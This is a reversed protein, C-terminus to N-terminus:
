AVALDRHRIKVLFAIRLFPPRAAPRRTHHLVFVIVELAHEIRILHDALGEYGGVFELRPVSRLQDGVEFLLKSNRSPSFGSQRSGTHRPASRIAPSAPGNSRTGNGCTGSPM